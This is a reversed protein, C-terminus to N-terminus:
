EEVVLMRGESSVRQFVWFCLFSACVKEKERGKGKECKKKHVSLSRMRM